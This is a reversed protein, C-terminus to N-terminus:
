RGHSAMVKLLGTRLTDDSIQDILENVREPEKEETLGALLIPKLLRRVAQTGGIQYPDDIASFLDQTTFLRFDGFHPQIVEDDRAPEWEDALAKAIRTGQIHVTTEPQETLSESMIQYNIMGVCPLVTRCLRDITGGFVHMTSYTYHGRKGYSLVCSPYEDAATEWTMMGDGTNVAFVNMTDGDELARITGAITEIYDYKGQQANRFNAVPKRTGAVQHFLPLNRCGSMFWLASAMDAMIPTQLRPHAFVPISMDYLKLDATDLFWWRKDGHNGVVAAKTLGDFAGALTDAHIHVDDGQACDKM